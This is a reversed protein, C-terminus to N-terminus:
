INKTYYAMEDTPHVDEEKINYKLALENIQKAAIERGKSSFVGDTLNDAINKQLRGIFWNRTQTLGDSLEHEPTFKLLEMVEMPNLWAFGSWPDDTVYSQPLPAAKAMEVFHVLLRIWNKVVFPDDCGENGMIRFEVTDRNGKIMHYSNMSFYKQNGMRKIIMEPNFPTECEFLDLLGICQCYKNRKRNMPVSDLFVGESKIWYMLIKALDVSKKCDTEGVSKCDAVEVHVHLSCRHDLMILPDERFAHVVKCTNKLSHWGKGPPPCIEIGCSSDPKIVWANNNHTHHHKKIEVPFNTIKTILDGIYEVGLPLEDKKLPTRKFDRSDLANLEIEVGFRRNYDFGFKSM